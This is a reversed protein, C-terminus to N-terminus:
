ARSFVQTASAAEPLRLIPSPSRSIVLTSSTTCSRMWARLTWAWVKPMTRSKIVITKPNYDRIDVAIMVGHGALDIMVDAM